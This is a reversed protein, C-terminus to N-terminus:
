LRLTSFADAPAGYTPSHPPSNRSRRPSPSPSRSPYRTAPFSPLPPPRPYTNNRYTEYDPFWPYQPQPLPGESGPGESDSSTGSSPGSSQAGRSTDNPNLFLGKGMGQGGLGRRDYQPRPYPEESESSPSSSPYVPPSSDHQFQGESGTEKSDSSTGSSPGSSDAGRRTGDPHFHRRHQERIFNLSEPGKGMGLGGPVPARPASQLSPQAPGAAGGAANRHKDYWDKIETNILVEFEAFTNSQELLIKRWTGRGIQNGQQIKRKNIYVMYERALTNIDAEDVGELFDPSPNPQKFMKDNLANMLRDLISKHSDCLVLSEGPGPRATSEKLEKSCIFCRSQRNNKEIIREQKTNRRPHRLVLRSQPDESERQITGFYPQIISM